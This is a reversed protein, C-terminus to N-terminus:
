PLCQKRRNCSKPHPRPQQQHRPQRGGGDAL